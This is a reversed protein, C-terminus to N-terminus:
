LDGSVGAVLLTNLMEDLSDTENPVLDGLGRDTLFSDLQTATARFESKLVKLAKILKRATTPESRICLPRWEEHQPFAVAAVEVAFLSLEKLMLSITFDLEPSDKTFRDLDKLAAELLNPEFKKMPFEIM